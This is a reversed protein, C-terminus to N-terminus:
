CRNKFMEFVKSDSRVLEWFSEGNMKFVVIVYDKGWSDLKKLGSKISSLNRSNVGMELCLYSVSKEGEGLLSILEKGRGGGKKELRSVLELLESKSMESVNKESM